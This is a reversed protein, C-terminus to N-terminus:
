ERETHLHNSHGFINENGKHPYKDSGTPSKINVDFRATLLKRPSCSYIIQRRDKIVQSGESINGVVWFWTTDHCSSTLDRYPLPHERPHLPEEAVFLSMVPLLWIGFVELFEEKTTTISRPQM